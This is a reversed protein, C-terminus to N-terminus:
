QPSAAPRGRRDGSGGVQEVEFGMMEFLEGVFEEFSEASLSALQALKLDARRAMRVQRELRERGDRISQRLAACKTKM